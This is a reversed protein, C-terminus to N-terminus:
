KQSTDREAIPFLVPFLMNYTQPKRSRHTKKLTVSRFFTAPGAGPHRTATNYDIFVKMVGLAIMIKLLFLSWLIWRPRHREFRILLFLPDDGEQVRRLRADRLGPPSFCFCMKHSAQYFSLSSALRGLLSLVGPLSWFLWGKL